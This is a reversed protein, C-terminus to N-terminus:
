CNYYYYRAKLSHITKDTERGKAEQEREYEAYEKPWVTAMAMALMDCYVDESAIEPTAVGKRYDQDPGGTQGYEDSIVTYTLPSDGVCVHLRRHWGDATAWAYNEKELGLFPKDGVRHISYDYQGAVQSEIAVIMVSRM